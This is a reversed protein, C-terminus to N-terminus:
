YSYLSLSISPIAWSPTFVLASLRPTGRSGRRRKPAQRGSGLALGGTLGM